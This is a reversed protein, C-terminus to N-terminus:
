VLLSVPKSMQQQRESHTKSSKLLTFMPRRGKRKISLPKYSPEAHRQQWTNPKRAMLFKGEASRRKRGQTLPERLDWVVLPTAPENLSFYLCSVDLKKNKLQVTSQTLTQAPFAAILLFCLKDEQPQRDLPSHARWYAVLYTFHLTTSPPFHELPIFAPFLWCALLCARARARARPTLPM